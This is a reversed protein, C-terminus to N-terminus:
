AAKTGGQEHQAMRSRITLMKNRAAQGHKFTMMSIRKLLEYGLSHDEECCARLVTQYFFIATTPKAAYATFSWTHPPSIGIWGLMPDGPGASSKITVKGPEFLFFRDALEGERFIVEGKKFEVAMACDILLALQKQDMGAFLAHGAVRSAVSEATIETTTDRKARSSPPSFDSLTLIKKASIEPNSQAPLTETTM